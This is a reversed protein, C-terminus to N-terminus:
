AEDGAAGLEKAYEEDDLAIAMSYLRDIKETPDEEEADNLITSAWRLAPDSDFDRGFEAMMDIYLCVDRRGVISYVAARQIGYRIMERARVDGMTSYQDPFFERLHEVMESEYQRVRGQRLNETQEQRITWM